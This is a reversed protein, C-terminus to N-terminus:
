PRPLLVRRGSVDLLVGDRRIELVIASGLQAGETVRQGDIIAFRRTPDPNYVHMSLKMPPLSGRTTPDLVAVPPVDDAVAENAPAAVLPAGPPGAGVRAAPAANAAADVAAAAPNRPPPVLADVGTPRAAAGAHAPGTAPPPPSLPPANASIPPEVVAAAQAETSEAPAPSPSVLSEDSEQVLEEKTVPADGDRTFYVAVGVLLVIGGAVPLWPLWAPRLASTPAPADAYLSPAQGRRREAESKRLADLILSM